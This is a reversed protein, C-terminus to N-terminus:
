QPRGLRQLEALLAEDYVASQFVVRLMDKPSMDDTLEGTALLQRCATAFARNQLQALAQEGFSRLVRAVLQEVNADDDLEM